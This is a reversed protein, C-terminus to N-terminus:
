EIDETYSFLNRYKKRYQEIRTAANPFKAEQAERDAARGIEFEAISAYCKASDSFRLEFLMQHTVQSFEIVYAYTSRPKLYAVWLEGESGFHKVLWEEMEASQDYSFDIVSQNSFKIM